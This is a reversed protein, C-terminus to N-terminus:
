KEQKTGEKGKLEFIVATENIAVLVSRQLDKVASGKPDYPVERRLLTRTHPLESMKGGITPRGTLEMAINVTVEAEKDKKRETGVVFSVSEKTSFVIEAAPDKLMSEIETSGLNSEVLTKRSEKEGDQLLFYVGLNMGESDYQHKELVKATM